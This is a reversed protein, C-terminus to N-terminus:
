TNRSTSFKVSLSPRGHLPRGNVAKHISCILLANLSKSVMQVASLADQIRSFSGIYYLQGVPGEDPKLLLLTTKAVFFFYM